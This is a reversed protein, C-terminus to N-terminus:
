IRGTFFVPQYGFMGPQAQVRFDASGAPVGFVVTFTQRTGPPLTQTALNIGKAFDFVHGVAQDGASAQINVGILNLPKASRNSVTVNLAVARNTGAPVSASASPMYATPDSIGIGVGDAYTFMMGFPIHQSADVQQDVAAPIGPAPASSITGAPGSHSNIAGIVVLLAIIGGVVWPWKRAPPRTPPPQHHPQTM